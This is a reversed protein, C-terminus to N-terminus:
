RVALAAKAREAAEKVAEEFAADAGAEAAEGVGAGRSIILGNLELRRRSEQISFDAVADIQVRGMAETRRAEEEAAARANEADQAKRSSVVSLLIGEAGLGAMLATGILPPWADGSPNLTLLVVAAVSGVILKGLAGLTWGDNDNKWRDLRGGDTVLDAAFAGV